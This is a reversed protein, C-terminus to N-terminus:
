VQKGPVGLPLPNKTLGAVGQRRTKNPPGRISRTREDVRPSACLLPQRPARSRRHATLFSSMSMDDGSRGTRRELCHTWTAANCGSRQGTKEEIQRLGGNGRNSYSRCLSGEWPTWATTAEGRAVSTALSESGSWMVEIERRHILDSTSSENDNTSCQHRDPQACVGCQNLRIVHARGAAITASEPAPATHM